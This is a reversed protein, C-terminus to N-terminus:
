ARCICTNGEARHAIFLRFYGPTPIFFLIMANTILSWSLIVCTKPYDITMSMIIVPHEFHSTRHEEQELFQQQKM